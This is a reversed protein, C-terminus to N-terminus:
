VKGRPLPKGRQYDTEHPSTTYWNFISVFLVFSGVGISLSALLKEPIRNYMKFYAKTENFSKNIHDALEYDLLTVKNNAFHSTLRM